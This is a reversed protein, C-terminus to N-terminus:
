SHKSIGQFFNIAIEVNDMKGKRWDINASSFMLKNVNNQHKSLETLEEQEKTEVVIKSNQQKQLGELTTMLAGWIAPPPTKSASLTPADHKATSSGDNESPKSPTPNRYFFSRLINQEENHEGANVNITEIFPGAVFTHTRLGKTAAKIPDRGKKEKALLLNNIIMPVDSEGDLVYQEIVEVMTKAWFAHAPSIGQMKTVFTEDFTLSKIDTGFPIPALIPIAYLALPKTKSSEEWITGAVINNTLTGEPCYEKENVDDNSRIAGYYGLEDTDIKVIAPVSGEDYANGLMGIVTKKSNDSFILTPKYITGINKKKTVYVFSAVTTNDNLLDAFSQSPWNSDIFTNPNSSTYYTYYRM